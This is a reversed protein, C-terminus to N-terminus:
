VVSLAFSIMPLLSSIMCYSLSVRAILHVMYTSYSRIYLICVFFLICHIGSIVTFSVVAAYFEFFRATGKLSREQLGVYTSYSRYIDLKRGELTDPGATQTRALWKALMTSFM